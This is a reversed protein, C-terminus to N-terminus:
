ETSVMGKKKSIRVVRRAKPNNTVGVANALAIMGAKGTAHHWPPSSLILPTTQKPNSLALPPSTIMQALNNENVNTIERAKRNVSTTVTKVQSM